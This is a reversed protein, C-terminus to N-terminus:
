FRSQQLIHRLFCVPDEFMDWRTKANVIMHLCIAAHAPCALKKQYMTANIIKGYTSFIKSLLDITITSPCNSILLKNPCQGHAFGTSLQKVNNHTWDNGTIAQYCSQCFLDDGNEVEMEMEQKEEIEDDIEM